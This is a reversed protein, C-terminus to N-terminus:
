AGSWAAQCSLPAPGPRGTWEVLGVERLMAKGFKDKMIRNTAKSLLQVVQNRCPSQEILAKVVNVGFNHCALGVVVGPPVLLQYLLQAQLLDCGDAAGRQVARVTVSSAFRHRALRQLDGILAQMVIRRQRPVGYTVIAMAVCHGFKHRCLSATDGVLVCDILAQTSPADAFCELLKCVVANGHVNAVAQPAKACLELAISASIEADTSSLLKGLVRCAHPSRSLKCVSGALRAAIGLVAKTGGVDMARCLMTSGTADTALEAASTVLQACAVDARVGDAELDDAVCPSSEVAGASSPTAAGSGNPTTARDSVPTHKDASECMHATSCRRPLGDDDQGLAARLTDVGAMYFRSGQSPTDHAGDSSSRRRGVVPSLAEVGLACIFTNRVVLTTEMKRAPPGPAL